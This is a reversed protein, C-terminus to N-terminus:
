HNSSAFCFTVVWRTPPTYYYIIDQSVYIGGGFMAAFNNSIQLNTSADLVIFSSSYLAMGGDNTGSNNTLTINGQLLATSAFLIIGTVRNNKITCDSINLNRLSLVYIAATNTTVIIFPDPYGGLNEITVNHMRAAAYNIKSGEDPNYNLISIGFNGGGNGTVLVSDINIDLAQYEVLYVDIGTYSEKSM